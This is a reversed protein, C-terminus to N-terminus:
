LSNLMIETKFFGSFGSNLVFTFVNIKNLCDSVYKFEFM